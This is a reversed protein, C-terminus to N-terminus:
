LVPTSSRVSTLWSDFDAMQLPRSFHYGQGFRCGLRRLESVQAETEIGEPIVLKGTARSMSVLAAVIAADDGGQRSDGLGEIFSRDIKVIDIPFRKLYSLSSFGTGFDDLLLKIGIGKLASLTTLADDEDGILVQETLELGLGEPDLGSEELARAVAAVVGPDALQTASLNVTLLFDPQQRRWRAAHRCAEGLMWAGIPVILGSQDAVDLFEVPSLFGRDPHQWRLLAEVGIPTGDGIRVFPQFALRLDGATLADRLDQEVALQNAPPAARTSPYVLEIRSRGRAKARAMAADAHRILDRPDDDEPEALCVGISARVYVRQDGVLVPAALSASVSEGIRLADGADELSAAVIVFEDGGFRAVTDSARASSCLRDAVARLVVDGGEPGLSDNVVKFRDLDVFLVGVRLGARGAFALSQRLRDDLLTRNPLGTVADHLTQLRRDAEAQERRAAEALINALSELFAVDDDTFDFPQRCFVAFIGVPAERRGIPVCIASRTGLMALHQSLELGEAGVDRVVLAAHSELVLQTMSGALPLRQGTLCGTSDHRVLFDSAGPELETVIAGDAAHLTELVLRAADRVLDGFEADAIALRGLEAVASQQRLRAALRREAYKETEHTIVLAGAVGGDPSLIPQGWVRYARQQIPSDYDFVVQEGALVRAYRARLYDWAAAPLVDDLRRGILQEGAYSGRRLADGDAFRLRYECDFVLAAAQPAYRLLARAFQEAAAFSSFVGERDLAAGGM